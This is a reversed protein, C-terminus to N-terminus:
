REDFDGLLHKLRNRARHMRVHIAKASSGTLKCIEEVSMEERYSVVIVVRDRPSLKAVADRVRASTEDRQVSRDPSAEERRSRPAKLWRFYLVRRRRFSRAKNITIAALWTWPSSDSRFRHLQKFAALFVDHVLDEVDGRWGLLRHALRTVSAQHERILDELPDTVRPAHVRPQPPNSVQTAQEPLEIVKQFPM